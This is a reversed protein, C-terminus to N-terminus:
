TFISNTYLKGNRLQRRFNLDSWTNTNNSSQCYQIHPMGNEFCNLYLFTKVFILPPMRNGPKIGGGIM